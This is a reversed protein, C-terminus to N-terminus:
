DGRTNAQAPIAAHQGTGTRDTNLRAAHQGTGTQDTNLTAAHQGMGTRTPGHQDTRAACM